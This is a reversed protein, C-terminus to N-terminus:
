ADVAFKIRPAGPTTYPLDPQDAPYLDEDESDSLGYIEALRQQPCTTAPRRAPLTAVRARYAADAVGVWRPRPPEVPPGLEDDYDQLKRTGGRTRGVDAPALADVAKSAAAEASVRDAAEKAEAAAAEASAGRTGCTHASHAGRCAACPAASDPEPESPPPPAMPADPIVQPAAAVSDCDSSSSSYGDDELSFWGARAVGRAKKKLYSAPPAYVRAGRAYRVRGTPAPQRQATPRPSAPRVHAQRADPPPVARPVVHSGYRDVLVRGGRGVRARRRTTSVTLREFEARAADTVAAMAAKDDAVDVPANPDRAKEAPAADAAVIAEASRQEAEDAPDALPPPPPKLLATVEPGETQVPPDLFVRDLAVALAADDRHPWSSDMFGRQPVCAPGPQGHLPRHPANAAARAAANSTGPPLAYADDEQIRRQKKHRRRRAADDRDRSSVSRKVAGREEPYDDEVMPEELPRLAVAALRERLVQAV